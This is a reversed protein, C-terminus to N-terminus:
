DQLFIELSKKFLPLFDKKTYGVKMKLFTINLANATLRPTYFTLIGLKVLGRLADFWVKGTSMGDVGAKSFTKQIATQMKHDKKEVDLIYDYLRKEKLTEPTVIVGGVNITGFRLKNPDVKSINISQQLATRIAPVFPSQQISKLTINAAVGQNFIASKTGSLSFSSILLAKQRRIEKQRASEVSAIQKPTFDGKFSQKALTDKLGIIKGERNKIPILTRSKITNL